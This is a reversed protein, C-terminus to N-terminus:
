TKTGELVINGTNQFSAEPPRCLRDLWTGDKSSANCPLIPFSAIGGNTVAICWMIWVPYRHEVPHEYSHLLQMRVPTSRHNSILGQSAARTSELVPYPVSSFRHAAWVLKVPAENAAPGVFITTCLLALPCAVGGCGSTEGPCCRMDEPMDVATIHTSVTSAMASGAAGMSVLGLIIGLLTSVFLLRHIITVFRM